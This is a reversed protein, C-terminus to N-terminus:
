ADHIAGSTMGRCRQEKPSAALDGGSAPLISERAAVCAWAVCVLATVAGHDAPPLGHARPLRLGSPVGRTPHHLGQPRVLQLTSTALDTTPWRSTLSHQWLALICTTMRGPPSSPIPSSGTIPGDRPSSAQRGGSAPSGAHFDRRPLGSWCWRRVAVRRLPDVGASSGCRQMSPSGRTRTAAGSALDYMPLRVLQWGSPTAGAHRERGARNAARHTPTPNSIPPPLHPTLPPPLFPPAWARPHRVCPNAPETPRLSSTPNCWIVV